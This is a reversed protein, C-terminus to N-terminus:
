GKAITMDNLVINQKITQIRLSTEYMTYIVWTLLIVIILVILIRSGTGTLMGVLIALPTM